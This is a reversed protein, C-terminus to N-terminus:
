NGIVTQIIQNALYLKPNFIGTWSWISTALMIGPIILIIGPLLVCGWWENLTENESELMKYGVYLLLAGGLILKFGLVILSICHISTAQLTLNLADPAHTVIATQIQTIIDLLKNTIISTDTM